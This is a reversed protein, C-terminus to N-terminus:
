AKAGQSARRSNTTIAEVLEHKTMMSRTRVGLSAAVEVLEPKKYADLGIPGRAAQEAAAARARLEAAV